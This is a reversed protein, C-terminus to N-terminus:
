QGPANLLSERLLLGEIESAAAARDRLADIYALSTQALTRRAVLVALSDSEGRRYVQTVLDLQERAAPLIDEEYRTIQRQAALYREFVLSLRAQLGLEIRDVAQEAVSIRMWAERIAGQNKNWVPITAGVQLAGDWGKVGNDKQFPIAQLDVNPVNQKLARQYIWRAREVEAMAAYLEPSNTRLRGLAVEWSIDVPADKLSGQLAEMPLDRAGTVAGLLRWASERRQNANELVIRVAATELEAQLVDIKSREKAKFLAEATEVAQDGIVVLERALEVKRQAAIVEYYAIATDTLVRLRQAEFEFRARSWEQSVAAQDLSLKRGTIFTQGLMLGHQEALGRSAIQQGTYGFFPNPPLGAQIWKGRLAEMRASAEDLSPNGELAMGQFRELELKGAEPDTQKELDWTHHDKMDDRAAADDTEQEPPQPLPEPVDGQDSPSREVIEEQATKEDKAFYLAPRALRARRAGGSSGNETAQSLVVQNTTKAPSVKGSREPPPIPTAKESISPRATGPQGYVSYTPAKEARLYQLPKRNPTPEAASIWPAAFCGFLVVGVPLEIRFRFVSYSRYSNHTFYRV